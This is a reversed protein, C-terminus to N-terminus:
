EDAKNLEFSKETGKPCIEKKKIQKKKKKKSGKDLKADHELM